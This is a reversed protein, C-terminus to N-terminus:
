LILRKSVIDPREEDAGKSPLGTGFDGRFFVVRAREDDDLAGAEGGARLRQPVRGLAPRQDAHGAM